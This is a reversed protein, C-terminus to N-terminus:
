ENIVLKAFVKDQDLKLTYGSENLEKIFKKYAPYKMNIAWVQARPHDSKVLRHTVHILAFIIANLGDFNLYTTDILFHVDHNWLLIMELM